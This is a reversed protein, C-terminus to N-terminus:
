AVTNLADRASELIATKLWITQIDREVPRHAEGPCPSHLLLKQVGTSHQATILRETMGSKRCGWPSYGVLSRQGHPNELCSYQLPKGHGGGPSKGLGPYRGPRRCQLCIGVIQALWTERGLFIYSFGTQSPLFCCGLQSCLLFWMRSWSLLRHKTWSLIFVRFESYVSM